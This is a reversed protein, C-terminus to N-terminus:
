WYRGIAISINEADRHFIEFSDDVTLQNLNLDSTLTAFEFKSPKLVNPWKGKIENVISQGIVGFYTM